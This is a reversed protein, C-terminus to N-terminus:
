AACDLRPDLVATVDCVYHKILVLGDLQYAFEPLRHCKLEM